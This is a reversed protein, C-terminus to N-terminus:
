QEHEGVEELDPKEGITFKKNLVNFGCYGATVFGAWMLVDVIADPYQSDFLTCFFALLISLTVLIMYWIFAVWKRSNFKNGM